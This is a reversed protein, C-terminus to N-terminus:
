RCDAAGVEVERRLGDTVAELEHFRSQLTQNSRTLEEILSRLHAGPAAATETKLPQAEDPSRRVGTRGGTTESTVSSLRPASELM